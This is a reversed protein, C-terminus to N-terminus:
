GSAMKSTSESTAPAASVYDSWAGRGASNVAVVSFEHSLGNTLSGITYSESNINTVYILADGGMERYRLEYNAIPEGGPSPPHITLAVEGDGATVSPPAPKGPPAISKPPGASAIWGKIHDAQGSDAALIRIPMGAAVGEPRATMDFGLIYDGAFSARSIPFEFIEDAAPLYIYFSGDPLLMPLSEWEHQGWGFFMPQEGWTDSEDDSWKLAQVQIVTSADDDRQAVLWDTGTRATTGYKLASPDGPVAIATFQFDVLLGSPAEYYQVALWGAIFASGGNYAIEYWDGDAGIVTFIDGPQAQGVRGCTTAACQRLNVTTTVTIDYSEMQARGSSEQSIVCEPVTLAHYEALTYSEDGLRVYERDGHEAVMARIVDCNYEADRTAVSVWDDAAVASVALILLLPFLCLRKM